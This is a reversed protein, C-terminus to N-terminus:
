GSWHEQAGRTAWSTFLRGAMCSVQTRDRPQSSGRSFPFAVRWYEPRFFEMSEITWPTVFLRVCSLSKWLLWFPFMGHRVMPLSHTVCKTSLGYMKHQERYSKRKDNWPKGYTTNSSERSTEIIGCSKARLVSFALICTRGEFLDQNRSTLFHKYYTVPLLNPNDIATFCVIM